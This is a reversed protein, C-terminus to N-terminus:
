PHIPRDLPDHDAPVRRRAITRWGQGTWGIFTQLRDVPCCVSTAHGPVDFWVVGHRAGWATEAILRGEVRADHGRRAKRVSLYGNGYIRRARSGFSAYISAVATGHNCDSCMVTVLLDDHGDSTVDALRVSQGSLSFPSARILRQPVWRPRGQSRRPTWLTLVYRRSDNWGVVPAPDRFQWAVVIQPVTRGAPVYWVHNVTGGRPVLDALDVDRPDPSGVVAHPAPPSRWAAGAVACTLVGALAALCLCAISGV